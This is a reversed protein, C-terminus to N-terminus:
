HTVNRLLNKLAMIGTIGTCHGTQLDSYCATKILSVESKPCKLAFFGFFFVTESQKYREKYIPYKYTYENNIHKIYINQGLITYITYIYLLYLLNFFPLYLAYATCFRAYPSSLSQHFMKAITERLISIPSVHKVCAKKRSFQKVLKKITEGIKFILSEQHKNQMKQIM